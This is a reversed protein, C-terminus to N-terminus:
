NTLSLFHFTSQALKEVFNDASDDKDIDLYGLFEKSKLYSLNEKSNDDNKFSYSNNKYSIPLNDIWKESPSFYLSIAFFLEVYEKVELLVLPSIRVLSPLGSAV